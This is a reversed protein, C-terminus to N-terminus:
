YCYCIVVAGDVAILQVPHASRLVMKCDTLVVKDSLLEYM